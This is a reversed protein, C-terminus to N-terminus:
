NGAVSIVGRAIGGLGERWKGGRIGQGQPGQVLGALGLALAACALVLAPQAARLGVGQVVPIPRGETARLPPPPPTPSPAGPDQLM